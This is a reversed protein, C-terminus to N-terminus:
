VDGKSNIFNILKKLDEISYALYYDNLEKDSMDNLVCDKDIMSIVSNLQYGEKEITEVKKRVIYPIKNYINYERGDNTIAYYARTIYIKDGIPVKNGVMIDFLHEKVSIYEIDNIIIGDDIGIVVDFKEEIQNYADKAKDRARDINSGIEEKLVLDTYSLLNKYICNDGIVENLMNKITNFKSINKTAILIKM